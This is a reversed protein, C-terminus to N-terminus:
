RDHTRVSPASPVRVDVYDLVVDAPLDDLVALAAAGKAGLDELDGLRVSGGDRLRLAVAGREGLVVADVREALADPLADRASAAGPPSLLSGPAPTRRLGVIEVVGDPVEPVTGLV